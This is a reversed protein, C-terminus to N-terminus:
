LSTKKAAAEPSADDDPALMAREATLLQELISRKGPDTEKDLMRQFREMNQRVVFNRM